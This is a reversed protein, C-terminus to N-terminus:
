GSIVQTYRHVGSARDQNCTVKASFQTPANTRIEACAYGRVLRVCRGSVGHALRCAHFARVVRIGTECSVRTVTLSAVSSPGLRTAVSSVDCSKTRAAPAADAHAVALVVTLASAAVLVLLSALSRPSLITM